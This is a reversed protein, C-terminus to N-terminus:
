GREEAEEFFAVRVGEAPQLVIDSKYGVPERGGMRSECRAFRQVVRVVTYGMETLAFQQGICIRPGGNFPIYTWSRPTWHEWREPAFTTIPPFRSGTETAPYLDPRRQMALTSYGVPTGKLIGVPQLGDPGGGHPLTTDRLAIRMNFPVIPYIRLIENLSHQLYKMAKLNQYSPQRTRGVTDLVERRLTAYAHPNRSLEYFLWSLSCATTDRGALLVAVLQDRLVTRDRTYRALAHLFTYSSGGGSGGGGSNDDDSKTRKDLEDPSLRLADEIYPEVFSNMTKIDRNFKRRPLLWNLQGMRQIISQIHQVSNFADAFATQDHLLSDVSRGLLFDTSADLTFRFFLDVVDVEQGQGGLMPLMTSVHREFINIDSVRDKIFQPRILQRSNHWLDGDTTFISDGLFAHWDRNFEEGKGYDNFQTALIAKINVEDFTM